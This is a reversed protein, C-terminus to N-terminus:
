SKRKKATAAAGRRSAEILYGHRECTLLVPQRQLKAPVPIEEGQEICRRIESESRGTMQAIEALPRLQGRFPHLM